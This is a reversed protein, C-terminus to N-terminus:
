SAGAATVDRVTCSSPVSSAARGEGSEDNLRADLAFYAPTAHCDVPLSHKSRRQLRVDAFAKWWFSEPYPNDDLFMQAARQQQETKRRPTQMLKHHKTSIAINYM